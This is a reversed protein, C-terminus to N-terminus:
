FDFIVLCFIVCVIICVFQLFAINLNRILNLMLATVCSFCIVHCYYFIFPPVTFLFTYTHYQYQISTFYAFTFIFLSSLQYLSISLSFSFSSLFSSISRYTGVHQVAQSMYPLILILNEGKINKRILITLYRQSSRQMATM